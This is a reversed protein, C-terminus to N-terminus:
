KLRQVFGTPSIGMLTTFNRWATTRQRYGAQTFLKQLDAQPNLRLQAVVYDIRRKAIYKNFTMRANRKFAENIYTRNSYTKQCLHNLDMHPDRWGEQEDIITTIREWLDDKEKSTDLGIEPMKGPEVIYKNHWLKLGCIILAGTMM